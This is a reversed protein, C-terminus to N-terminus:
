IYIYIFYYIGLLTALLYKLINPFECLNKRQHIYMLFLRYLIDTNGNVNLAINYEVVVHYSNVVNINANSHIYNLQYKNM